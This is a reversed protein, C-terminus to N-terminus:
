SYLLKETCLVPQLKKKLNVKKDNCFLGHFMWDLSDSTLKFLNEMFKILFNTKSKFPSM